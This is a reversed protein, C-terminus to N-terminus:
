TMQGKNKQKEIKNNPQKPETICWIQYWLVIKITKELCGLPDCDFRNRPFFITFGGFGDRLLFIMLFLFFLSFRFFLFSLHGVVSVTMTTLVHISKQNKIKRYQTDYRITYQLICMCKICNIFFNYIYM